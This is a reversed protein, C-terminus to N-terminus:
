TRRHVHSCHSPWTALRHSLQQTRWTQRQPGSAKSVRSVTAPRGTKKPLQPTRHAQYQKAHSPGGCASKLCSSECDQSPVKRQPDIGHEVSALICRRTHRTKRVPIGEGRCELTRVRPISSSSTRSHANSRAYPLRPQDHSAVRNSIMPLVSTAEPHRMARRFPWDKGHVVKTPQEHCFPRCMDDNM